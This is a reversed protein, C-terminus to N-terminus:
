RTPGYDACIVTLSDAHVAAVTGGSTAIEHETM